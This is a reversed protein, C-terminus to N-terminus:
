HRVFRAYHRAEEEDMDVIAQNVQEVTLPADKRESEIIPFKTRRLRIKPQPRAIVLKLGEAVIDDLNVGDFAAKAKAQRFLDDPIEVITKM